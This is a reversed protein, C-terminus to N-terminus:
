LIFPLGFIDRLLQVHGFTKDPATQTKLRSWFLDTWFLDWPHCLAM